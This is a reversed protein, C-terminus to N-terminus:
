VKHTLKYVNLLSCDQQLTPMTNKPPKLAVPTLEIRCVMTSGTTCFSIVLHIALSLQNCCQYTSVNVKLSLSFTPIVVKHQWPSYESLM